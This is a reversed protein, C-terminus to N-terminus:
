NTAWNATGDNNNYAQTDFEDRVNLVVSRTGRLRRQAGANGGREADTRRQGATVTVNVTATETVGGSTVTYTFSDTGNFDANPTYVVFDDTTAATGNNNVTM